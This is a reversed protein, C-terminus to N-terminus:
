QYLKNEYDIAADSWLFRQNSAKACMENWEGTQKFASMAREATELLSQCQEELSDGKFSFGTVGDIVTDALGGVAHVLCPQGARMALMQSIGCPEFSSPMIFLDGAQYLSESLEISFGRLFIFNSHRSAVELLFQELLPDGSGLLVLRARGQMKVLMNDLLSKGNFMMQRLLLAKQDTLRGVSTLLM